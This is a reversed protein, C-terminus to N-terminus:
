LQVCRFLFQALYQLTNATCVRFGVSLRSKILLSRCSEFLNLKTPLYHNPFNNWSNERKQVVECKGQSVLSEKRSWTLIIISVWSFIVGVLLAYCPLMLRYKTSTESQSSKGDSLFGQMHFSDLSCRVLFFLSSSVLNYPNKWCVRM